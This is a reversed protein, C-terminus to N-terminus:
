DPLGTLLYIYKIIYYLINKLADAFDVLLVQLPGVGVDGADCVVDALEEVKDVPYFLRGIYDLVEGM